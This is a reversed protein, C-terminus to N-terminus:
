PASRIIKRTTTTSSSSCSTREDVPSGINGGFQNQILHNRPVKPSANSSFWSNAVLVPDRYTSTSTATSSTPAAKQSWRLVPRWQRSPPTQGMGALRPMGFEQVSDIPAHGVITNEFGQSVGSNTQSAGGTALDVVDLGDLTIQNQDTRAGTTAGQSTVGPQM